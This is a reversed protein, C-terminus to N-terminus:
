RSYSWEQQSGNTARVTERPELSRSLTAVARRTQGARLSFTRNTNFQGPVSGSVRLDFPVAFCHGTTQSRDFTVNMRNGNVTGTVRIPRYNCVTERRGTLTATRPSGRREYNLSFRVRIQGSASRSPTTIPVMILQRNNTRSLQLPVDRSGVTARFDIDSHCANLGGLDVDYALANATSHAPRARIKATLDPCNDNLRTVVVRNPVTPHWAYSTDGYVFNWNRDAPDGAALYTASGNSERRVIVPVVADRPLPFPISTGAVRGRESLAYRLNTGFLYVGGREATDLNTEIPRLDVSTSSGRGLNNLNRVNFNFGLTMMNPANYHNHNVGGMPDLRDDESHNLGFNHGLEHLVVTPRLAHGAYSSITGGLTAVGIPGWDLRERYTPLVWARHACSSANSPAVAPLSALAHVPYPTRLSHRAPASIGASKTEIQISTLNYRNRTIDRLMATSQQFINRIAHQSRNGSYYNRDDTYTVLVVCLRGKVGREQARATTLTSTGQVTVSSAVIAGEDNWSGQVKLRQGTQLLETDVNDLRLAIPGRETELFYSQSHGDEAAEEADDEAADEADEAYVTLEGSLEETDDNTGDDLANDAGQTTSPNDTADDQSQDGPTEGCAMAFVGLALLSPRLFSRVPSFKM